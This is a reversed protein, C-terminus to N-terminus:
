PLNLPVRLGDERYARYLRARFGERSRRRLAITLM